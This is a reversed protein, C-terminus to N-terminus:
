KRVEAAEKDVQSECTNSRDHGLGDNSTTSKTPLTM